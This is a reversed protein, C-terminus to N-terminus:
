RGGLLRRAITRMEETVEMTAVTDFSKSELEALWSAPLANVFADGKKKALAILNAKFTEFSESGGYRGWSSVAAPVDDPTVIPFNRTEPFVFDGAPMEERQKPTTNRDAAAKMMAMADDAESMMPMVGADSQLSSRMMWALKQSLAMRDQLYNQVGYEGTAGAIAIGQAITGLMDDNCDSLCQLLTAVDADPTVGYDDCMAALAGLSTPVKAGQARIFEATPDIHEEMAEYVSEFFAHYQPFDLSTVNWHAASATYFMSVTQALLQTMVASTAVDKVAYRKAQPETEQATELMDEAGDDGLEVLVNLTDMLNKRATRILKMDGESHRRSAM